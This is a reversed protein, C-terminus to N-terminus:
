MVVCERDPHHHEKGKGKMLRNKSRDRKHTAHPPPHPVSLAQAQPKSQHELKKQLESPAPTLGSVERVQVEAPPINQSPERPADRSTKKRLKSLRRGLGDTTKSTVRSLSESGNRSHSNGGPSVNRSSGKSIALAIESFSISSHRRGEIPSRGRDNDAHTVDFSQRGSNINTTSPNSLPLSTVSPAGTLREGAPSTARSYEGTTIQGPDGEVPTIQYFLLYPTEERIAREIDVLTIREPALDDFRLWYSSSSDSSSTGRVLAVYHGSHTSNGRHCVVSQLSLKFNGFPGSKELMSDDQIFHPLKIEIPIDVATSLRVSRGNRFAYRKLCLGLVPRKSSFHAAVQADSSPAHDTYWPILSFFQWAPM